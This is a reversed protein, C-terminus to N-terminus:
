AQFSAPTLEQTSGSQIQEHKGRFFPSRSASVGFLVCEPMLREDQEDDTVLVRFVTVDSSARFPSLAFSAIPLQGLQCPLRDQLLSAPLHIALNHISYLEILPLLSRCLPDQVRCGLRCHDRSKRQSCAEIFRMKPVFFSFGGVGVTSSAEPRNVVRPSVHTHM